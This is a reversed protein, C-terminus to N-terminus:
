RWYRCRASRVIALSCARVTYHQVHSAPAQDEAATNRSVPLATLTYDHKNPTITSVLASSTSFALLLPEVTYTCSFAALVLLATTVSRILVWRLVTCLTYPLAAVGKSQHVLGCPLERDDTARGHADIRCWQAKRLVTPLYDKCAM